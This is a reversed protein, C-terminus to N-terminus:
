GGGNNGAGNDGAGNNGGCNNKKNCSAFDDNAIKERAASDIDASRQREVLTKKWNQTCADWEIKAKALSSDYDRYYKYQLGLNSVGAAAICIPNMFLLCVGGGLVASVNATEANTNFDELAKKNTANRNNICIAQDKKVAEVSKAEDAEWKTDSAALANAKTNECDECPGARLIAPEGVIFLLSLSVALWSHLQRSRFSKQCMKM